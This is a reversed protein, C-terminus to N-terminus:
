NTPDFKVQKATSSHSHFHYTASLVKTGSVETTSQDSLKQKKRYPGETHQDKRPDESNDEGRSHESDQTETDSDIPDEVEGDNMESTQDPSDHQLQHRGLSATPEVTFNDQLGNNSTPEQYFFVRCILLRM